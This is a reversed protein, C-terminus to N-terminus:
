AARVASALQLMQERLEQSQRAVDEATESLAQASMNATTSTATLEGIQVVVSNTGDLLNGLAQLIDRSADDQESVAADIRDANQRIVDVHGDVSVVASSVQETMAAVSGLRQEVSAAASQTQSALNKVEQAVVAFGRGAEGARAAEITANLALLNTQKAIHTILALIGSIEGAVEQLQAAIERSSRSADHADYINRASDAVLGRVGGGTEQLRRGHRNILNVSQAARNARDACHQSLDQAQAANRKMEQVGERMGLAAKALKESLESLRTEHMAFLRDIEVSRRNREEQRDMQERQLQLTAAQRDREAQLVRDAKAHSRHIARAIAGIEDRRRLGLDRVPATQRKEPMAYQALAMLPVLFDRNAHRLCWHAFVGAFLVLVTSFALSAIYFERLTKLQAAGRKRMMEIANQSTVLMPDLGHHLDTAIFDEISDVSGSQMLSRLKGKATDATRRNIELAAMEKPFETAFTSQEMWVWNVEIKRDLDNLVVLGAQPSMMSAKVKSSVVLSERYGDVIAQLRITPQIRETLLTSTTYQTVAIVTIAGLALLALLGLMTNLVLRMKAQVSLSAAWAMVELRTRAFNLKLPPSEM